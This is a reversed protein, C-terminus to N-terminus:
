SNKGATSNEDFLGAKEVFIIVPARSSRNIYTTKIVNYEEPALDKVYDELAALEEPAGQHGTYVTLGIRGGPRLLAVAAALATLTTAPKTILRHDGGPLWGLNFIAADLTEHILSALEEHGRNILTVQSDAGHGTLLKQTAQLAQEQIDLAYVRGDPGVQRALFLTDYGNGATADVAVGGRHLIPAIFLHVLRVAQGLGRDIM